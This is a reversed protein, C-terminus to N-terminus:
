KRKTKRKNKKRKTGGQIGLNRAAKLVLEADFEPPMLIGSFEAIMKKFIKAFHPGHENLKSLSSTQSKNKKYEQGSEDEVFSGKTGLLLLMVKNHNFVLKTLEDRIYVKDSVFKIANPDESIAAIAIFLDDKFQPMYSLLTGKKLVLKMAMDRNVRNLQLYYVVHDLDEARCNKIATLIIEEDEILEHSLFRVFSPYTSIITMALLRDKLIPVRGRKRYLHQEELFFPIVQQIFDMDEKLERPMFEFLQIGVKGNKILYLMFNKDNRIETPVHELINSQKNVAATIFERDHQLEQSVWFFYQADFSVAMSMVEKDKLLKDYFRASRIADANKDKIMKRLVYKRESLYRYMDMFEKDRGYSYPIHLEDINIDKLLRIVLEKDDQIEDSAFKFAHGDKRVATMVVEIDNKLEDSAYRLCTPDISIAKLMFEKNGKIDRSADHIFQHNGKKLSELIAEENM